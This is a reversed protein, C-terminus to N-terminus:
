KTLKFVLLILKFGNQPFKGIRTAKGWRLRNLHTLADIVACFVNELMLKALKFVKPIFEFGWRTNCNGLSM